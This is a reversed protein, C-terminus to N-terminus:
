LVGISILVYLWSILAYTYAFVLLNIGWNMWRSIPDEGILMNYLLVLIICAFVKVFTLAEPVGVQFMLWRLIPNGEVYITNFAETGLYTFIGDLPQAILLFLFKLKNRKRHM